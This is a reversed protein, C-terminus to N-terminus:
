RVEYRWTLYGRLGDEIVTPAKTDVDTYGLSVSINGWPLAREHTLAVDRVEAPGEALTNGRSEGARNLEVDRGMLEWRSGGADIFLVGLGLSTGDGDLSSGISRGRYRYGTTYVASEYACGFQPESNVFDCATDSYELHGRWSGGALDGWTEAGVLGLYKSPLGGAEDEGIAQGYLALPVGGGPWTWRLDFGALQNGPQEDLPQDNDNGILADWFTGFDCPRDEGCWQLTRSAAIQLSPLPRVEVRMGFLLANSYDRDEELQGMFTSFRWPGLWRLVPLDFPTSQERDLAVAPIPRANTSLILSGEWGPGWWREVYGASVTWNGLSAALYSGDPRFSQDDDPDAVVTGSLKWAFREGLYDARVTAEAAERPADEFTRLPSPNESGSLGVGVAVHGARQERELRHRVRALAAEVTPTITAATGRGVDRHVDPWSVPWSLSPGSLLGADYLVQLDHRLRVDGPAAWPEARVPGVVLLVWAAALFVACRRNL